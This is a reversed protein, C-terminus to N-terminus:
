KKIEKSKEIEKAREKLYDETSFDEPINELNLGFENQLDYDQIKM